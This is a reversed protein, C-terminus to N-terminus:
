TVRRRMLVVGDKLLATEQGDPSTAERGRVEQSVVEWQLPDLALEAVQEDPAPMESLQAHNGKEGADDGDHTHRGRGWPPIDAETEFVHSVLLLHGGPRVRGAARRLIETRPLAVRSHFFTATVLDFAETTEWTSLDHNVWTIEHGVGADAAHEAGRATATASIDVATM